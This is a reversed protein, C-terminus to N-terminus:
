PDVQAPDLRSCVRPCEFAEDFTHVNEAVCELGPEPVACMLLVISAVNRCDMRAVQEGLDLNPGGDIADCIAYVEEEHEVLRTQMETSLTGLHDYMEPRGANAFLTLFHQRGTVQIVGAGDEDITFRWTGSPSWATTTRQVVAGSDVDLAVVQIIEGADDTRHIMLRVTPVVDTPIGVDSPLVPVALDDPIAVPHEHGVTEHIEVEYGRWSRWRHRFSLEGSEDYEDWQYAVLEDDLLGEFIVRSGTDYIRLEVGDTPAAVATDGDWIVDFTHEVLDMFELGSSHTVPARIEQTVEVVRGDDDLAFTRGDIVVTSEYERYLMTGSQVERGLSQSRRLLFRVAGEDDLDALLLESVPPRSSTPASNITAIGQHATPLEAVWDPPATRPPDVEILADRSYVELISHMTAVRPMNEAAAIVADVSLGHDFTADLSGLAAVLEPGAQTPRPSPATVDVVEEEPVEDDPPNDADSSTAGEQSGGCALTLAAMGVVAARRLHAIAALVHQSEPRLVRM